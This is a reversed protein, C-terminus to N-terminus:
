GCISLAERDDGAPRRHAARNSLDPRQQEPEASFPELSNSYRFFQFGVTNLKTPGLIYTDSFAHAQVNTLNTEGNSQVRIGGVNEAANFNDLNFRYFFRNNDSTVVDTKATVLDRRFPLPVNGDLQPYVGRTNVIGTDM